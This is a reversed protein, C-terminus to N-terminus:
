RIAIAAPVVALAVALAAAFWPSAGVRTLAAAALAAACGRVPHAPGILLIWGPAAVLVGGGLRGLGWGGAASALVVVAVGSSVWGAGAEAAVVFWAEPFALGGVLGRLAADLPGALTAALLGLVVASGARFPSGGTQVERPAFWGVAAAAIGAGATWGGAGLVLTGVLGGLLLCQVRGMKQGEPGEAGAGGGGPTFIPDPETSVGRMGVLLHIVAYSLSVWLLAFAIPAGSDAERLNVWSRALDGAGAGVREGLLRAEDGAM